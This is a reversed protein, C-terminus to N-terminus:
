VKKLFKQQYNQKLTLNTTKLFNIKKLLRLFLDYMSSKKLNKRDKKKMMNYVYVKLFEELSIGGKPNQQSLEEENLFM